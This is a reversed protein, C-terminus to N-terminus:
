HQCSWTSSSFPSMVSVRPKMSNNSFSQHSLRVIPRRIGEEKIGIPPEVQNPDDKDWGGAAALLDLAMTRDGKYGFLEVVSLVRSPLLSLILSTMGNGLLVGSRFDEDLSPDKGDPHAADANQLYKGLSRYTSIATRMALAERAFSFWDGSYVVGLLAKEFTTEAFVLEAHLEVPTLLKLGAQSQSHGTIYSSLRGYIGTAKKRHLQAISVAYKAENIAGLLDEDEYSMLAKVTQILSSGSSFYLMDRNPNNAEIWSETELMHSSLFLSLAYTVGPLEELARSQDYPQKFIPPPPGLVDLTPFSDEAATMIFTLPHEPRVGLRITVDLLSPVDWGFGAFRKYCCDVV